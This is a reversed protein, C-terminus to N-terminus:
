IFLTVEVKRYRDNFCIRFKEFFGARGLLNFGVGLEKSFGIPAKFEIGSFRVPLVHLYVPILGGDGVKVYFKKGKRYNLGLVEARDTHFISCSAGTDIYAEFSIWILGRIEVPVIPAFERHDIELYPFEM